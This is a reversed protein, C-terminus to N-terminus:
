ITIRRTGSPAGNEAATKQAEEELSLYAAWELFKTNPLADLM